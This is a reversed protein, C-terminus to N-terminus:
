CKKTNRPSRRVVMRNFKYDDPQRVALASLLQRKVDRCKVTSDKGTLRFTVLFKPKPKM